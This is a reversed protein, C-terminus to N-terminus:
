ARSVPDTISFTSDDELAIDIVVLIVAGVLLALQLEVLVADDLTNLVFFLLGTLLLFSM